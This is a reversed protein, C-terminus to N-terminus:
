DRHAAPAAPRAAPDILRVLRTELAGTSVCDVADGQTANAKAVATLLTRVTTRGVAAPGAAPAASLSTTARLTVVYADAASTGLAGPGCDLYQSLRVGGLRGLLRQSSTGVTRANTDIEGLPLGLAQYAVLVRPWLSDPTATFELVRARNPPPHFEVIGAQGAGGRIVDRRLEAPPEEVPTPGPPPASACGTLGLLGVLASTPAPLSRRARSIYAASRGM